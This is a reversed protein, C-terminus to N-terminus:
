MNSHCIYTGTVELEHVLVHVSEHLVHVHWMSTPFNKQALKFRFLLGVIEWMLLNCVWYVESLGVCVWFFSIFFLIIKKRHQRFEIEPTLNEIWEFDDCIACICFLFHIKTKHWGEALPQAQSDIPCELRPAPLITQSPATFVLQLCVDNSVSLKTASLAPKAFISIVKSCNQAYIEFKSPLNVGLNIKRKTVHVHHIFICGTRLQCFDLKYLHFLM